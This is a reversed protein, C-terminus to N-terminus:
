RTTLYLIPASRLNPNPPFKFPALLEAHTGQATPCIPHSQPRHYSQQQLLLQQQQM